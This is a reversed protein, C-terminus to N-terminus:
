SQGTSNITQLSVAVDVAITRHNEKTGQEQESAAAAVRAPQPVRDDGEHLEVLGEKELEGLQLCEACHEQVMSCRSRELLQALPLYFNGLSFEDIKDMKWGEEPNPLGQHSSPANQNTKPKGKVVAAPKKDAAAPPALAKQILSYIIIIIDLQVHASSNIALYM